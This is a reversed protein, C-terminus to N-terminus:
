VKPDKWVKPDVYAYLTSGRGKGSYFQLLRSDEPPIAFCGLSRGGSKAYSSTHMVVGKDRARDNIGRDLGDIKIAYGVKDSDYQEGIQFLGPASKHSDDVNFGSVDTVVGGKAGSKGGHASYTAYVENSNFDIVFLRKSIAPKSFDVITLYQKNTNNAEASRIMASKFAPYSCGQTELGLASYKNVLSEEDIGAPLPNSGQAISLEFKKAEDERRAILGSNGSWQAEMTINMHRLLGPVSALDGRQIAERIKPFEERSDGEESTGRNFVLSVIATKCGSPLKDYAEAGLWNRAMSIYKPITKDEYIKMAVDYPVEIDRISALVSAKSEGKIFRLQADKLRLCKDEGIYDKLEMVDNFKLDYGVGITIGSSVGPVTPRILKAEYEKQSSIEFKSIFESMGQEGMQNLFATKEESSMNDLSSDKYRDYLLKSCDQESISIGLLSSMAILTDPGFKGDIAIAEPMLSQFHKVVDVIEDDTLGQLGLVNEAFQRNWARWDGIKYGSSVKENVFDNTTKGKFGYTINSKFAEPTKNNEKFELVEPKTQEIGGTLPPYPASCSGSPIFPIGSKEFLTNDPTNSAGLTVSSVNKSYASIDLPLVIAM